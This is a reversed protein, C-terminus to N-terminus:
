GNYWVLVNGQSQKCALWDVGTEFWFPREVQESYIMRWMEIEITDITVFDKSQKLGISKLKKSIHKIALGTNCCVTIDENFDGGYDNVFASQGGPYRKDLSANRIIVSHYTCKLESRSAENGTLEKIRM